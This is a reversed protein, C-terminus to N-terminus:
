NGAHSALDVSADPALACAVAAIGTDGLRQVLAEVQAETAPPPVPVDDIAVVSAALVAMGLWPQNQALVPGAAKFLRLKDLATLRRLALRRGEADVVEPASQAAAILRASPTDAM